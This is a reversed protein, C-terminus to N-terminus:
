RVAPAHGVGEVDDVPMVHGGHVLCSIAETDWTM